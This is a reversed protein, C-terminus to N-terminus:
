RKNYNNVAYVIAEMNICSEWPRCRCGYAMGNKYYESWTGSGDVMDLALKLAKEVLGNNLYVANYLFLGFDYGLSRDSDIDSSVYGTREFADMYPKANRELEDRTFLTTHYYPPLLNVSGLLFRKDAACPLQVEKGICKSCRYIGDEGRELWTLPSPRDALEDAQCYGFHFKPPSIYKERDPNNGYLVGDAVFNEKFLGEAEAVANEINSREKADFLGYSNEFALARKTSEIFLMTSEASGHNVFPRPFIHGAIYTEDGSFSTMGHAIHKIQVKIAWELMGFISKVFDTDGTVDLYEMACFVVYAPVEVEDNSFMLRADENNMSEANYLCGYRQWKTYWFELVKRAEQTYGMSMLGRMTGAQDRVYAMQYYHGAQIGGSESQQAKTQIAVSELAARIRQAEPFSDPINDRVKAGRLLFESWYERDAAEIDVPELAKEILTDMDPVKTTVITLSGEGPTITITRCDDELKVCGSAILVMRNETRLTDTTFCTTGPPVIHMVCDICGNSLTYNRRYCSSVSKNPHFKLSCATEAHIKRVFYTHEHSVVDRFVNKAGDLELIHQWCNTGPLRTTNAAFEEAVLLEGFSPSTYEPGFVPGINPGKSYLLMKGNGIAHTTNIESSNHEILTMM